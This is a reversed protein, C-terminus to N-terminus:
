FYQELQENSQEPASYFAAEPLGNDDQARRLIVNRWLATGFANPVTRRSQKARSLM